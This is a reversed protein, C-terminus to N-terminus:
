TKYDGYATSLISLPADKGVGQSYTEWTHILTIAYETTYLTHWLKTRSM